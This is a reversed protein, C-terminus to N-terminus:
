PVAEVMTEVEGLLEAVYPDLTHYRVHGAADVIAYGVPPGGDRPRDMRYAAALQAAPDAVVPIGAVIGPTTADAVVIVSQTHEGFGGRKALAHALASVLAPRIFFVVTRTGLEPIGDTVPPAPFPAGHVDLVGPRQYALDRADLPDRAARAALLAGGLGLAAVLWVGALQWRRATM